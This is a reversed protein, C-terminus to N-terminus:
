FFNSPKKYFNSINRAMTLTPIIPFDSPNITNIESTTTETEITIINQKEKITVVEDLITQLISSLIRPPLIVRGEKIIKTIM